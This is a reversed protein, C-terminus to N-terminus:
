ARVRERVRGIREGKLPNGIQVARTVFKREHMPENKSATFGARAKPEMRPRSKPRFPIQSQKSQEERKKLEIQAHVRKIFESDNEGKRRPILPGQKAAAL